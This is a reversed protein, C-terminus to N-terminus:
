GAIGVWDELYPVTQEAFGAKAGQELYTKHIFASISQDAETRSQPPTHDSNWRLLYRTYDLVEVRESNLWDSCMEMWPREREFDDQTAPSIGGLAMFQDLLMFDMPTGPATVELKAVIEDFQKATDRALGESLAELLAKSMEEGHVQAVMRRILHLRQIALATQLVERRDGSASTMRPDAKAAVDREKYVAVMLQILHNKDHVPVFPLASSEVPLLGLNVLLERGAAYDDPVNVLAAFEDKDFLAVTAHDGKAALGHLTLVANTCSGYRRALILNKVLADKVKAVTQPGVAAIFSSVLHGHEPKMVFSVVEANPIDHEKLLWALSGVGGLRAREMTLQTAQDLNRLLDPNNANAAQIDKTLRDVVQMAWVRVQQDVDHDFLAIEHLREHLGLAVSQSMAGKLNHLYEIIQAFSMSEISQHEVPAPEVAKNNGGFLSSWFGM